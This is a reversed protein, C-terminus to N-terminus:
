KVAEFSHGHAAIGYIKAKPDEQPEQNLYAIGVWGATLLEPIKPGVFGKQVAEETLGYSRIRIEDGKKVESGTRKVELVRARYIVPFRDEKGTPTQVDLIEVKLVEGAHEKLDEAAGPPLVAFTSARALLIGALVGLSVLVLRRHNSM